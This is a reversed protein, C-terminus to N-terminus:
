FKALNKLSNILKRYDNILERGGYVSASFYIKKNSM